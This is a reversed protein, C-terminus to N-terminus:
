GRGLRRLVIAALRFALPSVVTALAFALPWVMLFARIWHTLWDLTPGFQLLSFLGSMTLAMMGSMFLQGLLIHQRSM